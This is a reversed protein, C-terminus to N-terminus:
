FIPEKEKNITKQKLLAMFNHRVFKIGTEVSM